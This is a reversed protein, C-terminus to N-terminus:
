MNSAAFSDPPKIQCCNLYDQSRLVKSLPLNVYGVLAEPQDFDVGRVAINIFKDTAYVSLKASEDM